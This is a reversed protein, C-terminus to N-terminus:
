KTTVGLNAYIKLNAQLEKELTCHHLVTERASRRVSELEKLPKLTKAIKEALQPADNVDVLFGNVGDNLVDLVGGVPTAIVPVGCAMAELVANPMGDRLSPHVFVDMLSYYAPLDKHPVHGTVTISLQPNNSKFEEFYKKDEGERVEGVILLSVPMTKAAQAYGSILTALGKKERLEGAFGIVFKREDKKKEDVLGLAEALVSNKEMPKFRETDIGNPIIHVERDFFAKAKKALTSANTTVASANQIAYMVHSFKSPEFAAREIDNGRISVVSPISLYKGAYTGVLGAMPLFYAHILDFPERKHEEVILEFWDVLTDDVRKHVGFRTVYVGGSRQTQKITPSLNSTPAFLRIDHGAAALMEGLRGTSIALGGLDPTYKESLLAIKM